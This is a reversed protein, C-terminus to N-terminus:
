PTALILWGPFAPFPVPPLPEGATPFRVTSKISAVERPALAEPMGSSRVLPDLMGIFQSGNARAYWMLFSVTDASSPFNLLFSAPSEGTTLFRRVIELSTVEKRALLVSM